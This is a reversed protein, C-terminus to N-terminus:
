SDWPVQPDPLDRLVALDWPDWRLKCSDSEPPEAVPKTVRRHLQPSRTWILPLQLKVPRARHDPFVLFDPAAMWETTVVPDKVAPTDVPVLPVRLDPRRWQNDSSRKQKEL